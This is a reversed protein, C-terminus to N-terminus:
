PKSGVIFLELPTGNVLVSVSDARIELCKLRVKRTGLTITTEEDQALVKGNILALPRGPFGTIGTLQLTPPKAAQDLLRRCFECEAAPLKMRMQGERIQESTMGLVLTNLKTRGTISGQDASRAYWKYAEVRNTAVLRGRAYCDGLAVQSLGHDQSAAKFLWRISQQPNKEVAMDPKISTMGGMLMTGLRWQANAIGADAAKRFWKAATAYEFHHYYAEALTNQAQPDGDDAKQRIEPMDSTVIPSILAAHIPQMISAASVLLAIITRRPKLKPSQPRTMASQNHAQNALKLRLALSIL